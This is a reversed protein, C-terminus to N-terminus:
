NNLKLNLTQIRGSDRFKIQLRLESVSSVEGPFFIFGRALSNASLIRGEIGKDRVDEAIKIERQKDDGAKGTGSVTTVGEGGGKVPTTDRDRGSVIQMALDMMALATTRWASGKGASSAIAGSDSAKKIRDVAERNSLIKWYRSTGDILFTQGSVVDVSQGSKNDVVMQVPLIGAKRIDFGFAKEAHTKDSFSEAGVVLGSSDQYNAYDKPPRFSVSYREYAACAALQAVLLLCIIKKM